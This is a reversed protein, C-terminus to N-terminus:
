RDVKLVRIANLVAILTVGVDGFVAVWMNVIGVAGLILIIAKIGLAFSINQIVIKKTKKAIKFATLIKSPEDNMFVIDAAEVAADSGVNGMAIGIDARALVPADNIGDGIFITSGSNLKEFSEVKNQPLLEAYFEDIGLSNAIKEATQKKDGTLMITKIKQQKLSAITKKSDAKLTDEILVFGKNKGDIIVGDRNVSVKHGDVIGSVGQGAIEEFDTIEFFEGTYNETFAKAIPHTSFRELSVALSFDYESLPNETIKFKGTTLTGTKDFVVTDIKTLTDLYNSGKILIGQRSAAGIGGFYSLPISIVLACPCSVVLFVLARELWKSFDDGTILTPIIALALALLIVIPTYVRAFKTIFNESKSKHESAGQVLELIKSVTSNEYTKTVRVTLLGSLNVSGSLVEGGAEVDRPLSEGTLASTDLSSKGDTIIGDLPIREGVKIIIEDDIKVEQPSVKEGTKLTASEPRIDMLAAISRESRGIAAEEFMEGIKFFLMVAVGEGYEGIAFAGITAISMLFNEDFVQGKIINKIASWLVDYALILYATGYLLFEYKFDFILAILFIIGGTFLKIYNFNGEKENCHESCHECCHDCTYIKENQKHEHKAHEM